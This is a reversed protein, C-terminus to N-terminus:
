GLAAVLADIEARTRKETVAITMANHLEPYDVSSPFGGIIKKELLQKNIQDAPLPASITFEKFFASKCAIRYGPLKAIQAAAYHAKQLCLNAVERLGEKGVLSLYVTAAMANLAQNSCINSTAKERRIHQERAQLTLVFARQGRTDLTAGVIRGPIRRSMKERTAMVGLYPGGFSTYNGLSQGEAVVIDAGYNGPAELVALSIPDVAVVFLAGKQHTMAEIAKVQEIHGLFNPMQVLVGAVEETILGALKNLDLECGVLPAEIVEVGIGHMYTKVVRRYNPSVSKAIVVKKRGTQSTVMVAAEALASAGDYMSANSLDMGTLECIMSQYEYIVQLVGQSIEPQYPTYATLFEGRRLFTEVASPIYHDYAGGGLFCAYDQLNVNAQTLERVHALIEMETLAPPLNLPRNLRVDAPINAAFLEETSTVGIDRLMAEKDAQTIPIYRM